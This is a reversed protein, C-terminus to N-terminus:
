RKHMIWVAPKGTFPSNFNAEFREVSLDKITWDQQFSTGDDIILKSSDQTFYWNGQFSGNFDYSGSSQFSIYKGTSSADHVGDHYATDINWSQSVLEMKSPGTEAPEENKQDAPIPTSKSCASIVALWIILIIMPKNM